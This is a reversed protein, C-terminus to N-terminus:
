IHFELVDEDHLIEDVGINQGDYRGEGWIRAFKLNEAFEKHLAEAAEIVSSGEPLVIPNDRDIKERPSKPYIRIIDLVDFIMEKLSELGKGKKASIMKIPFDEGYLEKLVELRENAGECDCKNGLVITKKYIWGAEDYERDIGDIILEVKSNRLKNKPLELHELVDDSSMDLVLLIVDCGRSLNIVNPEIFDESIAPTDVLQIQINKFPMMGVSPIHTTFPYPAIEPQANTYADLLSSKGVNPTGVIVVQGAGERRIYFGPGKKKSSISEQEAKNRLKSLKARLDGRLRNTGKHKPMISLMEQLHEIKEEYTKASEFGKKAEYYQPPLNAPM